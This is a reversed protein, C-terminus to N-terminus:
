REGAASPPEFLGSWHWERTCASGHCTTTASGALSLIEPLPRVTHYIRGNGTRDPWRGWPDIDGGYQIFGSDDFFSACCKSYQSGSDGLGDGGVDECFEFCDRTLLPYEFTAEETDIDPITITITQYVSGDDDLLPVTMNDGVSAGSPMTVTIPQAIWAPFAERVGDGDIDFTTCSVQGPDNADCLVAPCADDGPACATAAPCAEGDGSQPNTEAWTRAAAAECATSCASWSGDCSLEDDDDDDDDWSSPPSPSPSPTTGDWPSCSGIDVGACVEFFPCAEARVTGDCEADYVACLRYGAASAPEDFYDSCTTSDIGWCDNGPARTRCQAEASGLLLVLVLAATHRKVAPVVATCERSSERRAGM